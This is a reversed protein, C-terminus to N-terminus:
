CYRCIWFEAVAGARNLLESYTYREDQFVLAEKQPSLEAQKFLVGFIDTAPESIGSLVTVAVADVMQEDEPYDHVSQM